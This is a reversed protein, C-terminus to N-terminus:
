SLLERDRALEEFQVNSSRRATRGVQRQGRHRRKVNVTEWSLHRIFAVIKCNIVFKSSCIKLLYSFVVHLIERFYSILSYFNYFFRWERKWNKRLIYLFIDHCTHNLINKLITKWSQSLNRLYKSIPCNRSQRSNRSDFARKLVLKSNDKDMIIQCMIKVGM